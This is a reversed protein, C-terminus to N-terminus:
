EKMKGGGGPSAAPGAASPGAMGAAMPTGGGGGAPAAAQPGAPGLGSMMGPGPMTGGGMGPMTMGGGGGASAVQAAGYSPGGPIPKTLSLTVDFDYGLGHPPRISSGSNGNRQKWMDPTPIGALSISLHSIQPNHEMWMMYKGVQALSITYAHLQVSQAEPVMSNYLVNRNTYDSINAIVPQYTSKNYDLAKGVFDRKAVVVKSSEIVKDAQAQLSDAKNADNEIAAQDQKIKETGADITTKYYFMGGAVALVVVVWLVILGTRKSGANVNPPLLNITLM